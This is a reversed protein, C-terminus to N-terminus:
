DRSKRLNSNSYGIGPVVVAGSVFTGAEQRKSTNVRTPKGEGDPKGEGNNSCLM